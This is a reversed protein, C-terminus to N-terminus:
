FGRAALDFAITRYMERFDFGTEPDFGDDDIQGVQDLHDAPFCGRFEGWKSSAITSVGDNPIAASPHLPDFHGVFATSLILLPDTVDQTGPNRRMRLEGREDRCAADISREIGGTTFGGVHSFGAWSQYLVGPADPTAANFAPMRAESMSELAAVLHSDAAVESFSEGFMSALADIAEADDSGPLVKLVADAMGTGRNPSSLMTVSAIVDGRDLGGPSALYRCDIGGMSFCVLNVKAAGTEALLDDVQQSLFGARVRPTDFPPVSGLRVQHGDAALVQDVDNFRWFNTTSTNFGHALLIPFRAAEGEAPPFLPAVEAGDCFDFVDLLGCVFGDGKGGRFGDCGRAEYEDVIAQYQAAQGPDCVADPAAGTCEEVIAAARDCPAEDSAVCGSALLTAVSLWTASRM